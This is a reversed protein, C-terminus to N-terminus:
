IREYTDVSMYSVMIKRMNWQVYVITEADDASLGDAMLADNDRDELLAYRDELHEWVDEEWLSSFTISLVKAKGYEYAIQIEDEVGLGEYTCTGVSNEEIADGLIKEIESREAGIFDRLDVYFTTNPSVTVDLYFTRDDSTLLTRHHGVHNAKVVNGEMYFVFDNNEQLKANTVNLSYTEGAKMELPFQYPEESENDGTCSVFLLTSFVALSLKSLITM